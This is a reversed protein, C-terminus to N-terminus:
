KKYDEPEDSIKKLCRYLYREMEQINNDRIEIGENRLLAIKKSLGGSYGGLYGNSKVVRHCPVHPAYPNKACALGVARYAKTGLREAILKYTTIRGKPIERLLSYVKKQFNSLM